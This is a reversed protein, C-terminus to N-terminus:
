SRSRERSAKLQNMLPPATQPPSRPTQPSLPSPTPSPRPPLSQRQLILQKAKAKARSH